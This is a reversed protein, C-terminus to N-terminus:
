NFANYGTVDMGTILLHIDHTGEYTVVSELNMMHRMSPYEGTIGMGGHMQRAERAVELAMAVNNRKAMSIQAPTAKGQNALTGLRWSLLQAKTIETIMEALKKQTLQFQGLKKGFQEREKSYRLASDYCDLAAGVAGWAIGYRAKSLCGLPGKLGQINPLINSKPVRVDEFVLEGTVSARLSWKGHIEPATFGKMDKEVIMGRIIGAEDKAWVVAIDAVPSNTIWMKAGNLIYADGDDKINTIMGSPNSGYDPETLGFCGIFEGSGLKPLYKRRQEENGYKFIPYMVLSGQVSAMSRIGSDGRELEQMIIGYAIEDMGGGGYEAPLSPGFAGVEALGKFLHVPCAARNAYDEIIPSVEQKVWERVADRALLHDESLLEDIAYYDHYEYLDTKSSKKIEASM